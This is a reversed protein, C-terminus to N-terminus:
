HIHHHYKALQRSSMVVKCYIYFFIIIFTHIEKEKKYVIEIYQPFPNWMRIPSQIWLPHYLQQLSVQVVFFPTWIFTIINKKSNELPHFCM